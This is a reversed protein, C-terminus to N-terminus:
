LKAKMWEPGDVGGGAEFRKQTAARIFDWVPPGFGMEPSAKWDAMGDYMRVTGDWMEPTAVSSFPKLLAFWEDVFGQATKSQPDLPLSAEIRGGLDRWKAGYEPKDFDDAVDKMKEGFRAKEEPTFYDAIVLKWSESEMMNEGAQILSCLTAANVPDGHDIRSLATELLVRTESLKETQAAIAAIQKKLMGSLDINSNDLVNRIEKLSLGARKLTMVRHLRELEGPGYHRRGSSSRLPAVLGKTEYFRLTRSTLGTRRVVEDIPLSDPM